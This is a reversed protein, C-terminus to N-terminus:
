PNVHTGWRISLSLKKLTPLSESTHAHALDNGDHRVRQSGMFGYGALSDVPNELCSYQLPNGHGGGPSRGSGPISSPDQANCAQICKPIIACSNLWAQDDLGIMKRKLRDEFKANNVSKDKISVPNKNQMSDMGKNWMRIIHM